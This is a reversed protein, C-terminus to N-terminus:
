MRLESILPQESCYVMTFCWLAAIRTKAATGWITCCPNQGSAGAWRHRLWSSSREAVSTAPTPAASSPPATVNGSQDIALTSYPTTADGKFAPFNHLVTETWAGGAQEPPTLEFILGSANAVGSYSAAGYLVGNPGLTPTGALYGGDSGGTFDHLVTEKWAGGSASPATLLYATGYGGTGGGTYGYINGQSDFTIESGPGTGDGKFQPFTYLVTKTWSGGKGSPPTFEFVTGCGFTIRRNTHCPVGPNAGGSTTTGYLVGNAGFLVEGPYQGDANGQFTYLVIHTWQGGQQTPPSLKFITGCGGGCAQANGGFQTTGYLNGLQDFVVGLSPQRGDTGGQFSYLVNETWAGGQVTPPVLQFVTGWNATGGAATTGYLAGNNDFPLGGEAFPYEGDGNTGTFSHITTLTQAQAVINGGFVAIALLVAARLFMTANHTKM